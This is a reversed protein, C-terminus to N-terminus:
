FIVLEFRLCPVLQESQFKTHNEVNGQPLQLFLVNLHTVIEEKKSRELENIWQGIM